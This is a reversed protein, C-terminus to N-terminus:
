KLVHLCEEATTTKFLEMVAASFASELDIDHSCTFRPVKFSKLVYTVVAFSVEVYEYDKSIIALRNKFSLKLWHM